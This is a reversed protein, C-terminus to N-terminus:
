PIDVIINLGCARAHGTISDIIQKEPFTISANSQTPQDPRPIALWIIEEKVPLKILVALIADIGIVHTQVWGTESIYDEGSIIEEWSKNRNTGTILTFNWQSDQSWSYLEYGKMSPPLESLAAMTLKNILKGAQELSRLIEPNNRPDEGGYFASSPYGLQLTIVKLPQSILPQYITVGDFSISSIPTWFAGVYIPKKDVCVMFSKGQVPIELKSIRDFANSYLKLEHTQANYTIIDKMGIIPQSLVEVNSLIPIQTPPIDGKTLYIGFGDGKPTSCANPVLMFCVLVVFSINTTIHALIMQM